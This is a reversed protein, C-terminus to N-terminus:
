FDGDRRLGGEGYMSGEKQAKSEGGQGFRGHVEEEHEGRRVEQGGQSRQM